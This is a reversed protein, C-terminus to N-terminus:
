RDIIKKASKIVDFVNDKMWNKDMWEEPRVEIGQVLIGFHLHDGLALGTTGSKAIVDGAKINEAEDVLYSSAHAYLSYLGLGHSIIINKGYIGNYKAFVVTGDNSSVIDAKAISALDLGLHYGESVPKSNYSYFRHDGFSAVAAGNKLPYFPKLTFDSIMQTPVALTAKEIMDENKERLTENIYKFRELKGMTTSLQSNEEALDLIKGDLFNDKLAINSTRYNKGKLYFKVRTKAINGAKDTAIITAKFSTENSPWALLSIYHDDKYFPTPYFKKGFNTEIHLDKLNEDKAKFVVTAVGGKIIKYSNNITYLEPRKTDVNILSKKFVNNGSLFNWKSADVAEVTLEFQKKNSIFGTRPFEIDLVYEEKPTTFLEKFLVISNKGDSLTARVFKIGSEDSIKITIPKKLNWNIKEDLAISPAVREFMKSNYLYALAAIIIIFILLVIIGASSKKRRM